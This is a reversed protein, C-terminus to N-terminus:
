VMLWIVQSSPKSPVALWGIYGYGM